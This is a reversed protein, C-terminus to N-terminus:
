LRRSIESFFGHTLFPCKPLIINIFQDEQQRLHPALVARTLVTNLGLRTIAMNAPRQDNIFVSKALNHNCKVTLSKNINLLLSSMNCVCCLHLLIVNHDLIPQHLGLSVARVVRDSIALDLHLVPGPLVDHYLVSGVLFPLPLHLLQLPHLTWYTQLCRAAVSFSVGALQLYRPESHKNSSRTM